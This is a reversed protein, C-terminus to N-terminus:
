SGMVYGAARLVSCGFVGPALRHRKSVLSLAAFYLTSVVALILNFLATSSRIHGARRDYQKVCMNTYSGITSGLLSLLYYKM